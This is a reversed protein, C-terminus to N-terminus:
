ARDVGRKLYVRGPTCDKFSTKGNWHGELIIEDKVRKVSLIYRKLCWEMDKGEEITHEKIETDKLLVSIGSECSGEIDIRAAIEEGEIISTGSIVGKEEKIILQIRFSISAFEEEQTITGEWVGSLNLPAVTPSEVAFNSQLFLSLILSYLIM